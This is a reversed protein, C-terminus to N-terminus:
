LYKKNVAGNNFGGKSKYKGYTYERKGKRRGSHHDRPGVEQKGKRLAVLTSTTPTVVTVDYMRQGAMGGTRSDTTFGRSGVLWFHWSRM